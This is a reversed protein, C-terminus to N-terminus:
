ADDNGEEIDNDIDGIGGREETLCIPCLETATDMSEMPWFEQCTPCEFQIIKKTM